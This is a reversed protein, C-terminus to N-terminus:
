ATSRRSRRRKASDFLTEEVEGEGHPMNGTSFERIEGHPGILPRWPWQEVEPPLGDPRAKIQDRTIWGQLLLARIADSRNRIRREIQFQDIHKLMEPTLSLMVNETLVKPKTNGMRFLRRFFDDWLM